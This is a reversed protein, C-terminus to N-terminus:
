VARMARLATTQVEFMLRNRPHRLDLYRWDLREELPSADTIPLAGAAPGPVALLELVVRPEGGAVAEVVGVAEIASEPALGEIAEAPPAGRESVLRAHGTRDRLLVSRPDASEPAGATAPRPEFPEPPHGMELEEVQAPRCARVPPLLERSCVLLAVDAHRVVQELEAGAFRPSLPM